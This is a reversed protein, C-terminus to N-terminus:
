RRLIMLGAATEEFGCADLYFAKLRPDFDVHLYDCGARAAGDRAAHVLGVGVHQGREDPAVMLDQIWAHVLGDWLVNVFGLLKNQRRATVWGLSHRETLAVWDWDSDSHVRTEFAVSHLLNVETNHFPGRWEYSM